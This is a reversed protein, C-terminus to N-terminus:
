TGNFEKKLPSSSDLIGGEISFIKKEPFKKRLQRALKMSRNGSKCFLLIEEVGEVVGTDDLLKDMPIKIIGPYDFEPEEKPERIDIIISNEIERTWHLANEWTIKEVLGCTLNYDTQTFAEETQPISDGM